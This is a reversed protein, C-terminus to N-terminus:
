RLSLSVCFDHINWRWGFGIGAVCSVSLSHCLTKQSSACIAICDAHGYQEVARMGTDGSSCFIHGISQRWQPGHCYVPSRIFTHIHMDRPSVQTAFDFFLENLNFSCIVIDGVLKSPKVQQFRLINFTASSLSDPSVWDSRSLRM